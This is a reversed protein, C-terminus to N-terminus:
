FWLIPTALVACPNLSTSPIRPYTSKVEDNVETEGEGVRGGGGRGRENEMKREEAGWKEVEERERGDMEGGRRERGDRGDEKSTSM